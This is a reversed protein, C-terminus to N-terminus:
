KTEGLLKNLIMWYLGLENVSKMFAESEVPKVLYSNVYLGLVTVTLVGIHSLKESASAKRVAIEAGQRASRISQSSASLEFDSETTKATWRIPFHPRPRYKPIPQAGAVFEACASHAVPGQRHRNIGPRRM